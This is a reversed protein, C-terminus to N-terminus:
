GWRRRRECGVRREESRGGGRGGRGGAADGARRRARWALTGWRARWAPTGRRARQPTGRRGRWAPTRRRGRWVPTERRRTWAPTGRRGRRPFGRGAEPHLDRILWGTTAASARDRVSGYSPRQAGPCGG